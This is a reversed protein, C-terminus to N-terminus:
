VNSVKQLVIIHDPLKVGIDKATRRQGAAYSAETYKPHRIIIKQLKLDKVSTSIRDLVEATTNIREGRLFTDGIMLVCWGGVSLVRASNSLVQAMDDVYAQLLERKGIKFGDRIEIKRTQPYDYGLWLMEFKYISSYRYVNFYPPHCIVLNSCEPAMFQIRADQREIKIDSNFSSLEKFGKIFQRCKKAVVTYTDVPKIAPDLFMRGLGNSARSLKRISSALALRFVDKMDETKIEEEIFYRTKAITGQVEPYFWHNLNIDKPIFHESLLGNNTSYFQAYATLTGEIESPDVQTTKVKAALCSLPNVDLGIAARGLIMAEVLTTGSGVMPDIVPGALPNHLEKIFRQAVPPPFKGFYRLFGHTLYSLQSSSEKIEWSDYECSRGALNSQKLYEKFWDEYSASIDVQSDEDNFALQRQIKGSM